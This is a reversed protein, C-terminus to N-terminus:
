NIKISELHKKFKIFDEKDLVIEDIYPSGAKIIHWILKLRNMLSRQWSLKFIGMYFYWFDEEDCVDTVIIGNNCQCGFYKKM